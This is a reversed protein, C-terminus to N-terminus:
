GTRCALISAIRGLTVSVRADDEFVGVDLYRRIMDVVDRRVYRGAVAEADFRLALDDSEAAVGLRPVADRAQRAVRIEQDVFAGKGFREDLMPPLRLDAGKRVRARALEALQRHVAADLVQDRGVDPV